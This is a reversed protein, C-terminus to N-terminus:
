SGYLPSLPLPGLGGVGLGRDVLGATCRLRGHVRAGSGPRQASGLWPRPGTAGAGCCGPRGPGDRWSGAVLKGGPRQTPGTQAWAVSGAEKRKKKEEELSLGPM